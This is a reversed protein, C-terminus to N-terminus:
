WYETDISAATNVMESAAKTARMVKAMDGKLKAQGGLLAKVGDLEKKLIKEWNPYTASYIYEIGIKGEPPKEGAKILVYDDPQVIKAGTCDGHYLGIWMHIEEKVNGGPEVVFIYDGEWGNPPFGRPGAAEKYAESENMAKVYLDCWEQTAYKPM